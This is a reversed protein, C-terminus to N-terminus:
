YPRRHPRALLADAVEKVFSEICGSGAITYKQTAATAYNAHSGDAVYVVPRVGRKEVAAYTYAYGGSHASLYVHTLAGDVFRVM